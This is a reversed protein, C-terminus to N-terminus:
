YPYGVEAIYEEYENKYKDYSPHGPRLTRLALFLQNQTFINAQPNPFKYKEWMRQIFTATWEDANLHSLPPPIAGGRYKRSKKNRKFNRKSKVM